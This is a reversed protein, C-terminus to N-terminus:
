GHLKFLINLKDIAKEEKAKYLNKYSISRLIKVGIENKTTLLVPVQIWIQRM